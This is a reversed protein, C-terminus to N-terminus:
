VLKDMIEDEKDFMVKEDDPGTEHDYGILHLISHTMLRKIETKLSHELERSQELARELSLFVDGLIESTFSDEGPFSEERYAFSIVDTSYDRSRYDRNIERIESDTCLIVTIACNKLELIDMIKVSVESILGTDVGNFPIEINGMIEIQCSNM